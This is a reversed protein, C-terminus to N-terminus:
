TFKGSWGDRDMVTQHYLRTHYRTFCVPYCLGPHTSCTVCHVTTEKRVGDRYCVRCRKQPKSKAPTPPVFDAVHFQGGTQIGPRNGMITRLKSKMGIQLVFKTAASYSLTRYHWINGLVTHYCMSVSYM